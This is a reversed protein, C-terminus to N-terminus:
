LLVSVTREPEPDDDFAYTSSEKSLIKTPTIQRIFPTKSKLGQRAWLFVAPKNLSEALPVVFSCYGLFGNAQSAVDILESVSTRNALDIDIGDYEYLPVGSGIRVLTVKGRLADIMRQMAKRDPLLERAFGDVRDMPIRPLLVCVIPKDSEVLRTTAKWDLRFEVSEKIGAQICCDQWQNTPQAKRMTYHACIDANRRFATVKVADGLPRFLDPYSSCVELKYGKEVLHRAVGQLYLGDGM